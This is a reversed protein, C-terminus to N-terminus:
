RPNRIEDFCFSKKGNSASARRRSKGIALYVTIRRLPPNKFYKPEMFDAGLALICSQPQEDIVRSLQYSYMGNYM